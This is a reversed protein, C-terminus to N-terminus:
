LGRRHQRAPRDQRILLRDLRAAPHNSLVMRSVSWVTTLAWLALLAERASRDLRDKRVGRAPRIPRDEHDSRDVPDWLDPQRRERGKPDKRAPRFTVQIKRDWPAWLDM